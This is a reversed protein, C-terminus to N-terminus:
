PIIDLNLVQINTKQPLTNILVQVQLNIDKKVIELKKIEELGTQVANKNIELQKEVIIKQLHPHPHAHPHRVMKKTVIELKKIEEIVMQVVHPCIIYLCYLKIRFLHIIDSGESVYALIMVKYVLREQNFVNNYISLIFDLEYYFLQVM